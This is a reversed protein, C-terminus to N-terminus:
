LVIGARHLGIYIWPNGALAAAGCILKRTLTRDAVSHEEEKKRAEIGEEVM